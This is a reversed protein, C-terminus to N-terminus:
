ICEGVAEALAIASRRSFHVGDVTLDLNRRRKYKDKTSPFFTMMTSDILRRINRHRWSFERPHPVMKTQIAYIDVFQCDYREALKKIIKNYQRLKKHPYRELEIYPLGILIIRKDYNKLLRIYKEYQLYFKRSDTICRMRRCRYQMQMNWLGSISTMYPLLVDNTGLGIIYTDAQAYEPSQVIRQFRKFAHRITDGNVGRNIKPLATKLYPIYSHGVRGYTLSDGFCLVSM